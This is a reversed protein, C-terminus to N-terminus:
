AEVLIINHAHLLNRMMYLVIWPLEFSADSHMRHRM